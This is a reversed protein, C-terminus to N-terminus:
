HAQNYLATDQARLREAMIQMVRLAFNPTEEVMFSFRKEDIAVIKADARAIATASRPNADILAMEGVIGGPGVTEILKGAVIIDVEGEQVVYMVEGNEGETFIVEGAPYFETDTSKRFMNLTTTVTLAEERYLPCEAKPVSEYYLSISATYETM